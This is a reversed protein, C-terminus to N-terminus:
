FRRAGVVDAFPARPKLRAANGPGAFLSRSRSMSEGQKGLPAEHLTEGRYGLPTRGPGRRWHFRRGAALSFHALRGVEDLASEIEQDQLDERELRHVAPRDALAQPLNRFLLELDAIARQIGGKV